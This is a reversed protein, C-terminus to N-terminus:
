RFARMPTRFARCARLARDETTNLRRMGEMLIEANGVQIATGIRARATALWKNRVSHWRAVPVRANDAYRDALMRLLKSGACNLHGYTEFVFPVATASHARAITDWHRLKEKARIEATQGPSKDVGQRRFYTPCMPHTGSVDIYLTQGGLAARIDIRKAMRTTTAQSASM